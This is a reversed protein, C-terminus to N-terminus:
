FITIPVSASQSNVSGCTRLRPRYSRYRLRSARDFFRRVSRVLDSVDRPGYNSGERYTATLMYWAGRISGTQVEQDHLRAGTIISKKLRMSRIRNRDLEITLRQVGHGSTSSHVLGLGAAERCAKSLVASAMKTRRSAASLLSSRSDFSVVSCDSM